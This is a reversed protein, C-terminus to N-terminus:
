IDGHRMTKELWFFTKLHDVTVGRDRQPQRETALRACAGVDIEQKAALTSTVRQPTAYNSIEFKLLFSYCSTM